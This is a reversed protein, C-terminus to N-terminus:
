SWVRKVALSLSQLPSTLRWHFLCRRCAQVRSMLTLRTCLHQPSWTKCVCSQCPHWCIVCLLLSLRTRLATGYALGAPIMMTRGGLLRFAGYVKALSPLWVSTYRAGTLAQTLCTNHLDLVVDHIQTIDVSCNHFSFLLTCAYSCAWIIVDTLWVKCSLKPCSPLLVTCSPQKLASLPRLMECAITGVHLPGQMEYKDPEKRDIVFLVSAVVNTITM